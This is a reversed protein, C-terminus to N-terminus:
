KKIVKWTKGSKELRLIYIGPNLEPAHIQLSSQTTEYKRIERGSIDILTFHYQGRRPQDTFEITFSHQFPNPYIKQKIIPKETVQNNNYHQNYNLSMNASDTKIVVINTFDPGWSESTGCIIMRNSDDTIISYGTENEIEGFTGSNKWYGQSDHISFRIDKKGGGYSETYGTFYYGNNIIAMDYFVDDKNNGGLFSRFGPQFPNYNFSWEQKKKGPIVQYGGGIILSDHYLAFMIENETTDIFVTDKLINYATDLLIIRGNLEKQTNNETIGAAIIISDGIMDLSRIEKLVSDPFAYQDEIIGSAQNLKFVPTQHYGASDNISTGSVYINKGTIHHSTINQWGTGGFNKQWHVNGNTDVMSVFYDYENPNGNHRTGSILISDPSLKSASSIQTISNKFFAMDWLLQGNTKIKALYVQTNAPPDPIIGVALYGNTHHMIEVGENYGYFGYSNIFNQQAFISPTLLLIFAIIYLKNM